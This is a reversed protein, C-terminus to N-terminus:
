QPNGIVRPCVPPCSRLPCSSQWSDRARRAAAPGTVRTDRLRATLPGTTPEPRQCTPAMRHELGGLSSRLASYIASM